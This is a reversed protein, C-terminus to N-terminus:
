KTNLHAVVMMEQIYSAYINLDISVPHIIYYHKYSEAPGVTCTAKQLNRKVVELACIFQCYHIHGIFALEDSFIFVGSQSSVNCM